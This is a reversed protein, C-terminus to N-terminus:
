FFVQYGTQSVYAAGFIMEVAFTCVRCINVINHVGHLINSFLHKAGDGVDHM